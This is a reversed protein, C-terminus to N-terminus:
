HLSIVHGRRIFLLQWSVAQGNERCWPSRMVDLRNVDELFANPFTECGKTDPIVSEYLTFEVCIFSFKLPKLADFSRRRKKSLLQVKLKVDQGDEMRRCM